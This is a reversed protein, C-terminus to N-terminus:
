LDRKGEYFAVAVGFRPIGAPTLMFYRVTVTGKGDNYKDANALLERAFEQTGKVGAKPRDGNEDRKDDPMIFEVAKACGAWNGNGEMIKSVPFEEDIFDKRKRLTKSRKQEYPKDDRWMSGEYGDVLWKAHLDDFDMTTGMSRTEVLRIVGCEYLDFLAKLALHRKWFNEKVSPMDYVHYQVLRASEALQEANPKQKKVISVIKNFDDKLEHNYLEGDLVLEPNAEFLPKLEEIVHPAGFFPKGERSFMFPRAGDKRVICRIGDLKPQGYGPTFKHPEYKQALMPEFFHAGGEAGEPTKHYDRDLNKKYEAEIEFTAQAVPDRENARGVNTAETQTWGSEVISGYQIGALTRYRSGNQEMAWVRMKGKTDIKYLTDFLKQM